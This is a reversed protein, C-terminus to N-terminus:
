KRSKWSQRLNQFASNVGKALQEMGEVLQKKLQEMDAPTEPMSKIWPSAQDLVKVYEEAAPTTEDASIHDGSEIVVEVTITNNDHDHVINRKKIRSAM